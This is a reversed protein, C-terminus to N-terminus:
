WLSILTRPLKGSSPEKPLPALITDLAAISQVVVKLANKIEDLSEKVQAKFDSDEEKSLKALAKRETPTAGPQVDMPVENLITASVAVTGPHTIPPSPLPIQQSKRLNAIEARLQEDLTRLSANETQM